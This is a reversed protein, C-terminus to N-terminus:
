MRRMTSLSLAPVGMILMARRGIAELYAHYEAIGERLTFDCDQEQYRLHM